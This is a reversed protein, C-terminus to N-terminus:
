KKAAPKAAPKAAAAPAAPANPDEIKAVKNPKVTGNAHSFNYNNSLMKASWPTTITVTQIEGPQMLGPVTGKSGVVISGGKDYWTEAITLRPVPALSANRVTIKTVVNAGDRKTVPAMFDILAEGKIPPTFKKGALIQKMEPATQALATGAALLTAVLTAGFAVRARIM